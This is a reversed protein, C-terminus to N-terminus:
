TMTWYTGLPSLPVQVEVRWRREIVVILARRILLDDIAQDFRTDVNDGDCIMVENVNFADLVQLSKGAILQRYEWAYFESSIQTPLLLDV